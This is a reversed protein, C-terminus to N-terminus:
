SIVSLCIMTTSGINAVPADAISAIVENFFRPALFIRKMHKIAAGFAYLHAHLVDPHLYKYQQVQHFALHYLM